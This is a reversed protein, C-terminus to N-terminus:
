TQGPWRKEGPTKRKDYVSEARQTRTWMHWPNLLSSKSSSSFKLGLFLEQGFKSDRYNWGPVSNQFESVYRLFGRTWDWESSFNKWLQNGAEANDTISLESGPVVLESVGVLYLIRKSVGGAQAKSHSGNETRNRSKSVISLLDLKEMGAVPLEFHLVWSDLERSKFGPEAVSVSQFM